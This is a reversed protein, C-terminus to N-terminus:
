LALETQAPACNRLWLCETRKAAGDALAARQVRTWGQAPPYLRDYLASPYGSLIIMGRLQHLLEALTEHEQLSLEHKYGRVRQRTEPVYPPDVYHLTTKADHALMVEAADRSEIVVGQVRRCIKKLCEPYTLWDYAPTSGSRSSNARFGTRYTGSMGDGGFGMCARVVSRCAQEISESAPEYSTEFEARAFPTLELRRVLEPGHDRAIQFLNVIEGDLDNYIEAYSRPKRLLVSAAGGFPEVYVKHAPFHSIIWPALRWKGGHYRLIPRTPPPTQM